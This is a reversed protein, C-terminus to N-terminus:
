AKADYRLRDYLKSGLQDRVAEVTVLNARQLDRLEAFVAEVQETTAGHRIGCQRFADQAAIWGKAEALVEALRRTMTGSRRPHGSRSVPKRKARGASFYAVVAVRALLDAAPQDNPDQPALDGRFATALTSVILHAHREEMSAAWRELRDATSLFQRTRRVVEDQEALGPLAIELRRIEDSNINNVGTTSRATAEIQARATPGQLYLSLYEPRILAPDVRLRILYGAFAFGVERASVLAARGVLDISGNSRIMLLDGPLLALRDKEAEELDAYKIDDHTIAGDVVNPIRIIPTSRRGYTAKKSTGYRVDILLGDLPGTRWGDQVRQEARWHTTLTGNAASALVAQRLRQLIPSVRALHERCAELRGVLRDLKDAIRVQELLPALPAMFNRVDNQRVAPYMAGQVLASMTEIFDTTRVTYYIWRPDVGTARLVDLGTSAIQGDLEKPVLAVANLNPRTLAVLVDGVQIVKRARSPAEAGLLTKTSVIRKTRRDISSIDVYQFSESLAPPRQECDTTIDGLRAEVWSSPLPKM